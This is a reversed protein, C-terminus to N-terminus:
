FVADISLEFDDYIMKDKLNEFYNGSAYKIDFKTRDIKLTATAKKGYISAEFLVPKTIGKITLNSMVEFSNKGKATVKTMVLEASPFQEVDFFDKSTLHNELMDKMGGELDTCLLSQMDVVFEGGTLKDDDFLLFGSKLALTGEHSGTLKYGKWEITSNKVDLKQQEFNTYLTFNTLAVFASLLIVLAYNM